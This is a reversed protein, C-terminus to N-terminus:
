KRSSYGKSMERWLCQGRAGPILQSHKQRIANPSVSREIHFARGRVGQDTKKVKLGSEGVM